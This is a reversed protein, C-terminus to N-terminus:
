CQYLQLIIAIDLPLVLVNLDATEINCVINAKKYLL